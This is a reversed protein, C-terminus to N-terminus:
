VHARGIKLLTKRHKLGFAALKPFRLALSLLFGTM